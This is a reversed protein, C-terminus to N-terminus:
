KIKRGYYEVDVASYFIKITEFGLYTMMERVLSLDFVHYHTYIQPNTMYNAYWTDYDPYVFDRTSDHNKMFEEIHTKDDLGINKEYDDILHGLPTVSRTHDFTKKYYPIGAYMLGGTKLIRKWEYLAKLPNTLHEITGASAIFDVSEDSLMPLSHADAKIDVVNNKGHYTDSINVEIVKKAQTIRGDLVRVRGGIKLITAQGWDVRRITMPVTIRSLYQRYKNRLYDQIM